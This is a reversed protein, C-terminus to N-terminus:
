GSCDGDQKMYRYGWKLDIGRLPGLFSSLVRINLAARQPWPLVEREM